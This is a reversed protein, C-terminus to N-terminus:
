IYIYIYLKYIINNINKIYIYINIKAFIYIYCIFSQVKYTNKYINQITQVYLNRIMKYFLEENKTYEIIYIVYM